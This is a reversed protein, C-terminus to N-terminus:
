KSGLYLTARGLGKTTLKNSIYYPEESLYKSLERCFRRTDMAMQRGNRDTFLPIRVQEFLMMNETADTTNFRGMVTNAALWDEIIFSLEEEGPGFTSELDHEWDDWIRIRIIVERGNNFLDDFHTQLSSCFNDMHALVAEELLVPLEVTYSPAGTGAATAIQKDTYADLGQLNFTVSSRPGTKNVTWSLQILIDAKAVKRIKDTLSERAESGGERSSILEEEAEDTDLTKLVSELNKLPFGRDSMIGNIKSVVLLLEANQQFAKKYDPYQVSTGQDDMEVMFGNSFCWMDSPVVMLTPKKAQALAQLAISSLLLFGLIHRTM